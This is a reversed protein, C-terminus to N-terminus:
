QGRGECDALSVRSSLAAIGLILKKGYGGARMVDYVAGSYSAALEAFTTNM